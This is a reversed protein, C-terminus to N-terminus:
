PVIFYKGSVPDKVKSGSSQSRVDFLTKSTPDFPDYVFGLRGPVPKATPLTASPSSPRPTVAAVPVPADSTRRFTSAGNVGLGSKSTVAATKGDAAPAFTWTIESLWGAHWTMMNGSVTAARTFSGTKSNEQM